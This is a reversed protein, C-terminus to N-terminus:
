YVRSHTDPQDNVGMRSRAMEKPQSFLYDSVSLFESLGRIQANVLTCFSAKKSLRRYTASDLDNPSSM